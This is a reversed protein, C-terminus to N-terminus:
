SSIAGCARCGPDPAIRIKRWDMSLGNFLHLIGGDAHGLGVIARIALLAAFNGMTGTLAGLVGLEACTDCDDADFADGVFCRYCPKGRFLAVQGQFQQAAASILPIGLKVAADSVVLRTAFNDTGDLIIDNGELLEAANALDVRHSFTRVEVFPNRQQVHRTALYAKGTGVEDSAFLPQRQLNSLEVQDDDIITLTGIGAGALAPIAGGGIGGAGVVAVRAAKLRLQGAGGIQPLVIHRAYRDLEEDSLAM